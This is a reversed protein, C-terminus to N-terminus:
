SVSRIQDDREDTRPLWDTLRPRSAAKWAAPFAARARRVAAREREFLRGATVALVHDDPYANAIALWTDGAVAADQHEGLLDQVAKLAKALSAAGGGLAAGAADAAYRARKGRIRVAHWLEDPDTATLDVQAALAHWPRGVLSALLERAPEQARDSLRPARAAALLHELLQLYRPSSLAEDVAVLAEEHRSCLDTDIRTVAHPDLPAVPDLGATKHLRDRLVEADRAGGLVDALWSLEARLRDAWKRNLAARFTRLDSRLRRTGVRMQHVATDGDPLPQGLRVLPDFAFVRAIDARLAATVVSGASEDDSGAQPPTLDPAQEAEAGLARVHKARFGGEVAGADTLARGVKDLLGDEGAKREAEIERFTDTEDEGDLVTVTDDAVEVLVEGDADLLEYARRVTRITTAPALPAGRHYATLLRVFEDPLEGSPGPRSIEQRVGVSETPLKVTWPKDDGRRHRLSIGARALRLDATDYYTATLTKPAGPRVPGPLADSLDPMTFGPEVHYKREEELVTRNL